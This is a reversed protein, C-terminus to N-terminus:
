TSGTSLSEQVKALKQLARELDENFIEMAPPPEMSRLRILEGVTRARKLSAQVYNSLVPIREAPLSLVNKAVLAELDRLAKLTDSTMVTFAGWLDDVMQSEFLARLAEYTENRRASAERIDRLADNLQARVKDPVTYVRQVDRRGVAAGLHIVNGLAEDLDNLAVRLLPAHLYFRPEMAQLDYYESIRRNTMAINRSLLTVQEHVGSDHLRESFYRDLAERIGPDKQDHLRDSFYRNLPERIDEDDRDHLRESFHRNLAEGIEPDTGERILQLAQDVGTRSFAKTFCIGTITLSAGLVFDPQTDFIKHLNGRAMIAVAVVVSIGLFAWFYQPRTM